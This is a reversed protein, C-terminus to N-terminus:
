LWHLDIIEADEFNEFVLWRVTNANKAKGKFEILTKGNVLILAEFKKNM